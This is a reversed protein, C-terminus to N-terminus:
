SWIPGLGLQATMELALGGCFDMRCNVQLSDHSHCMACPGAHYAYM